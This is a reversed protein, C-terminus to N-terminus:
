RHQPSRLDGPVMSHRLDVRVVRSHHHIGTHISYNYGLIVHCTTYCTYLNNKTQDCKRILVAVSYIIRGACFTTLTDVTGSGMVNIFTGYKICFFRFSRLM